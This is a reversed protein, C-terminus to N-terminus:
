FLSLGATKAYSTEFRASPAPTIAFPRTLQVVTSTPQTGPVSFGVIADGADIAKGPPHFELTANSVSLVHDWGYGLLEFERPTGFARRQGGSIIFVQPLYKPASVIAGDPLLIPDGETLKRLAESRMTTPQQDPFRIRAIAADPVLHRTTGTVVYLLKTTASRVLDGRPDAAASTIATGEVYSALDIASADEVEEPNFGLKRFVESSAIRRRTDGVLLWRIRDPGQVVSYEIFRIPTGAPYTEIEEQRASVIPAAPARTVLVARSALARRKGNQILWYVQDPGQLATGDPWAGGAFWEKWIRAFSLNGGVGTTGGRWPTYSYLAATALNIPTVM